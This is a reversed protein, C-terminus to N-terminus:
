RYMLTHCFFTITLIGGTPKQFVIALAKNTVEAVVNKELFGRTNRFRVGTWMLAAGVAGVADVAGEAGGKRWLKLSIGTVGKRWLKFSIGTAGKRWLGHCRVKTKWFGTPPIKVVTNTIPKSWKTKWVVRLLITKWCGEAARGLGRHRQEQYIGALICLATALVECCCAGSVHVKEQCISAHIYM